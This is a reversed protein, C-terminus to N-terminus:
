SEESKSEQTGKVIAEQVAEEERNQDSLSMKKMQEEFESVTKKVLKAANMVDVLDAEQGSRIKMLMEEPDVEDYFAQREIPPLSGNRMRQILDGVSYNDNPITKSKGKSFTGPSGKYNSKTM